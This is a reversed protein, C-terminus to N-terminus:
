VLEVVDLVRSNTNYTCKLPNKGASSLIRINNPGIPNKIITDHTVHAHGTCVCLINTNTRITEYFINKESDTWWKPEADLNYHFYIVTPMRFSLYKKLYDIAEKNPYLGLCIFHIPGKYFSYILSGHSKEIYSLVSYKYKSIRLLYKINAIISSYYQDHNGNCLYVDTSTELKDILETKLLKLQNFERKIECSGWCSAYGDGGTDTLDGTIIVADITEKTTLNLIKNINDKKDPRIGDYRFHTDSDLIFTIKSNM